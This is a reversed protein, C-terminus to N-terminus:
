KAVFMGFVATYSYFIFFISMFESVFLVESNLFVNGRCLIM